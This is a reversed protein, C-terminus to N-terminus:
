SRMFSLLNERWDPFDRGLTTTVKKTDLVSYLPRAAPLNWASMPVEEFAIEMGAIEAIARGWDARSVGSDPAGDRIHFLGTHGEKLLDLTAEILTGAYTPVSTEDGTIKSMSKGTNFALFKHVFNHEGPGYLWSVRAVLSKEYALAALDGELKSTGYASLPHPTDTEAYPHHQQGDFVYDSGFHVLRADIAQAAETIHHVGTNNVLFGAEKGESEMADVLTYGTANIIVEPRLEEITRLVKERETVDLEKSGLCTYPMTHRDFHQRFLTALQGNKGLLLTRM